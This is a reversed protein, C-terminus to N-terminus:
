TFLGKVWAWLGRQEPAPIPKAVVPPNPKQPTAPPPAAQPAPRGDPALCLLREDTRRNVLGKLPQCRPERNPKCVNVFAMLADCGGQLDGNNIKRVIAPNASPM